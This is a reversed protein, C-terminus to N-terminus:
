RVTGPRGRLVALPVACREDEVPPRVRRRPPPAPGRIVTCATFVRMKRARSISRERSDFSTEAHFRRGAGPKCPCSPPHRHIAAVDTSRDAGPHVAFRRGPLRCLHALVESGALSAPHQLPLHTRHRPDPLDLSRHRGTGRPPRRGDRIRLPAVSASSPREVAHRQAPTGSAAAAPNPNNRRVERSATRLEREAPEQRMGPRSSRERGTRERGPRSTRPEGPTRALFSSVCEGDLSRFIIARSSMRSSGAANSALPSAPPSRDARERLSRPNASGGPRFSRHM